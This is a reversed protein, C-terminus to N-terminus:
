PRCHTERSVHALPRRQRSAIQQEKQNRCSEADGLEGIADCVFIHGGARKNRNHSAIGVKPLRTHRGVAPDAGRECLGPGRLFASQTSRVFDPRKPDRGNSCSCPSAKDVFQTRRNSWQSGFLFEAIPLSIGANPHRCPWGSTTERM